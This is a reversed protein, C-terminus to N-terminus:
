VPASFVELDEVERQTAEWPLGKCYLTRKDKEDSSSDRKRSNSRSRSRGRSRSRAM